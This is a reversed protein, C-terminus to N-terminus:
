RPPAIGDLDGNPADNESPPQSPATPDHEPTSRRRRAISRVVLAIVILVLAGLAYLAYRSVDHYITGMHSGAVDGLTLWLGVWLIAGLVNFAVFRLWRMRSAGAVIGNAQRLGEIFRAIVIVKGGHRNFFEEAKDLREPTLFVFRGWRLIAARGAFHGIAFGVNDGLVAGLVGLVGIVVPNLRGAGAYIAAAILVTEGPVPIGFDELFIFGIVAFYGYHNLVPALSEFVGPLVVTASAIV